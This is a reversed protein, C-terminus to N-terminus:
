LASAIWTSNWRNGIRKLIVQYQYYEQWRNTGETAAM